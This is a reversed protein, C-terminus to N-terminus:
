LFLFTVTSLRFQRADFGSWCALPVRLPARSSLATEVWDWHPAMKEKSKPTTFLKRFRRLFYPQIFVLNLFCASVAQTNQAAEHHEKEFKSEPRQGGAVEPRM